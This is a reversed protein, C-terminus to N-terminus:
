CCCSNKESKWFCQMGQLCCVIWERYVRWWCCVHVSWHGVPLMCMLPIRTLTYCRSLLPRSYTLCTIHIATSANSMSWKINTHQLLTTQFHWDHKWSVFYRTWLFVFKFFRQKACNHHTRTRRYINLYIRSFRTHYIRYIKFNFISVVCSPSIM